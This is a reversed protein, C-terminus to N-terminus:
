SGNCMRSEGLGESYVVRQAQVAICSSRLRLGGFHMTSGSDFGVLVLEGNESSKGLEGKGEGFTVFVGDVWGKRTMAPNMM